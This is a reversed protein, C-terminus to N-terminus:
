IRVVKQVYKSAENLVVASLIASCIMIMWNIIYVTTVSMLSFPSIIFLMHTLYVAYSYKDTWRLLENYKAYKFIRMLVIFLAVGLILHSYHVVITVLVSPFLGINVYRLYFRGINLIVAITVVVISWRRKDAEKIQSILSPVFFGILYCSIRDPLFYSDFAFGVVQVAILLAIYILLMRGISYKDVKLRIWYLYPTLLYCFLIYGVFWLHGLGKITGACVIAKVASVLSLSDRAFIAYLVIAIFLLVEYPVLIKKFGKIIFSIPDDIVRNSYLYGSIVFFIQVGVNFWYALENEYYQFVHCVIIM